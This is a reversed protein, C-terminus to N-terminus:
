PTLVFDVRTAAGRALSAEKSAPQFGEASVKVTYGGPQLPPGEYAGEANTVVALEPVPYGDKSVIELAAHEVPAGAASTVTGFFKVQM